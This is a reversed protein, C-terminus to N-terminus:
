SVDKLKKELPEQERIGASKSLAKYYLHIKEKLRTNRSDNGNRHIAAYLAKKQGVMIVKKKARTIGTYILNRYLMILHAELVPLLVIEYESGMAKHITTAYALELNAMDEMSYELERGSGFDMGIRKGEPTEKIYRIFGLDGNSVKDTNKNQMVRDGARFHVSGLVIENEESQYPNVIERIDANLQQASAEGSERFPSLIQVKEIGNEGIERYYCEVLIGAAEEQSEVPIFVFDNGYYLNTNGNNILRANYPILSDGSQRAIKDLVTVAVLGCQILERFVSGPGVSPLQDPDGVLVIKTDRRTHTFFQWALWMDVMSFEDVIILDADLAADKKKKGDGDEEGSLGLGSHMTKAGEFGTSEAMRRSARGTPAMLMIKRDRYVRRYIDLITKLVTTKGTGPPGTIISIDFHFARLVAEEQREFLNMGLDKKVAAFAAAVDPRPAKEVLREAINRATEDEQVFSATQYVDEKQLVVRAKLIMDQLAAEVEERKLRLEPVPIGANLLQLSQKVLEERELYLHGKKGRADGLTCYIAGHIRVPDHLNGGTKQVIADVRKFGFGSIRCLEFPSKQLIEVSSPGFFEYVKQATKPTLKFPALLAMLNRLVRSEAFSAKIDELRNETIGRVELLKEPHNELIGMAELGFRRVIDAATKEGIGKILGSGLYSIIGEETPPVIESWQEVQLQLGYRGNEVWRGELAIEVADTRPLEFGVATFRILHDRYRATSRADAPIGTDASKISVICYKNAPNYFITKDYTGRVSVKEGEPLIGNIKKDDM